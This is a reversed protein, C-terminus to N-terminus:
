RIVYWADDVEVMRLETTVPERGASRLTVPLVLYDSAGYPTQTSGVRQEDGIVVSGPLDAEECIREYGRRRAERDAPWWMLRSAERCEGALALDWFQRAAQAAGSVTQSSESAGTDRPEDDPLVLFALGATALGTLVVTAFGLPSGM